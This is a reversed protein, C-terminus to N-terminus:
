QRWAGEGALVRHAVPEIRMPAGMVRTVRVLIEFRQLSGDSAIGFQGLTRRFRPTDTLLETAAEVGESATGSVMLVHGNPYRGPLFAIIGYAESSNDSNGSQRYEKQEGRAPKRNEFRPGSKGAGYRVAFNLDAEFLQVWPNSRPTGLFVFNGGGKLSRLSLQRAFIVDVPAAFSRAVEAMRVSSLAYSATTYQSRLLFEAFPLMEPRGRLTEPIFKGSAYESVSLQQDALVQIAGVGADPLVLRVGAGKAFMASWPLGTDALSPQRRESRLSRNQVWLYACAALSLVAVAPWIWRTAPRAVPM